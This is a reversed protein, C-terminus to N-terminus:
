KTKRKFYDPLDDDTTHNNQLYQIAEERTFFHKFNKQFLLSYGQLLILQTSNLGTFAMKDILHLVRATASEAHRLFRPTIINKNYVSLIRVRKNKTVITDLAEDILTMMGAEKCDTYNIELIETQSVVINKVYGM